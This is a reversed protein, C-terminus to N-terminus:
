SRKKKEEQIMDQWHAANDTMTAELHQNYMERWGDDDSNWVTEAIDELMVETVFQLDNEDIFPVLDSPRVCIIHGHLDPEEEARELEDFVINLHTEAGAIDGKSLALLAFEVRDLVSM